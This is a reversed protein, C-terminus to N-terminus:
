KSPLEITITKPWNDQIYQLDQEIGQIVITTESNTSTTQPIPLNEWDWENTESNWTAHGYVGLVAENEIERPKSVPNLKRTDSAAAAVIPAALLGLGLRKLFGRRKM